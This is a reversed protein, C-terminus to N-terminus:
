SSTESAPKSKGTDTEGVEDTAGEPNNFDNILEDIEQGIAGDLMKVHAPNKFDLLRPTGNDDWELNHEMICNAFEYSSVKENALDLEAKFEQAQRARRDNRSGGGTMSIKSMFDKRTMQEGYTLRRLVVYADPLSKLEFRQTKANIGTAIPM